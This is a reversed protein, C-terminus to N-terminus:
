GKPQDLLDDAEQEASHSTPRLLSTTAEQSDAYSRLNDLGARIHGNSRVSSIHSQLLRYSYENATVRELHSAVDLVDFEEDTVRLLLTRTRRESPALRRPM